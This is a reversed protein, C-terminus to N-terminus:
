EYSIKVTAQDLTNREDEIELEIEIEKIDEIFTIKNTKLSSEDLEVDLVACKGNEIKKSYFVCDTMYGNVSLSNYVDDITLTKGSNNEALLFFHIDDSYDSVDDCFKKAVIRVGGNNYVEQGTSDYKATTGPVSIEITAPESLAEGEFTKQTLALSVTGIETIGFIDWYDPNFVSTLDVYLIGRKGPNITNFSWVSSSSIGLGNLAFDSTAIYAIEDTTNEMELLLVSHESYNNMIGSSVLKIGNQDYLSDESFCKMTYGYTDMAEKSTIADQYYDKTYDHSDFASTKVQRPGTYTNNYDDDSIEFGIEIDAIENIGYLMLSDYSFSISDNAKKGAAVDCNLYGDSVMYGNISNCSYGTSGSVFSLDKKTTNEITLELNVEYSNYTLDTATIKIGDEEVMVTEEIVANEHFIGFKDESRNDTSESSVEETGQKEEQITDNAKDSFSESVTTTDTQQRDPAPDLNATGQGCSIFNLTMMSILIFATIKKM